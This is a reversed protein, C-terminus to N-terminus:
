SGFLVTANYTLLQYIYVTTKIYRQPWGMKTHPSVFYCVINSKPRNFLVCYCQVLSVALIKVKKKGKVRDMVTSNMGGFTGNSNKTKAVTTNLIGVM